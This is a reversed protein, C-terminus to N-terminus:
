EKNMRTKIYFASVGAAGALVPLMWIASSQLGALLLANSDIVMPLGGVKLLDELTASLIDKVLICVEGGAGVAIGFSVVNPAGGIAGLTFTNPAGIGVNPIAFHGDFVKPVEWIKYMNGTWMAIGPSEWSIGTVQLITVEDGEATDQCNQSALGLNVYHNHPISSSPDPLGNGTVQLESDLVGGHTTTVALSSQTLIGTGKFGTATVPDVVNIKASEHSPNEFIIGSTIDLQADNPGNGAYAPSIIGLVLAFTISGVLFKNYTM